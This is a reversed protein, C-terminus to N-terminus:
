SFLWLVDPRSVEKEEESLEAILEDRSAGRPRVKSPSAPTSDLEVPEANISAASIIFDPKETRIPSIVEQNSSAM